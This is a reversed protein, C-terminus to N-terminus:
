RCLGRGLAVTFSRESLFCAFHGKKTSNGELYGLVGEVVKMEKEVEIEV